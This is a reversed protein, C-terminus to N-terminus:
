RHKISTIVNLIDLYYFVFLDEILFLPYLYRKNDQVVKGVVIWIGELLKISYRSLGLFQHNGNSIMKVALM